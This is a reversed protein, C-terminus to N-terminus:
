FMFACNIVKADYYILKYECYVKQGVTFVASESAMKLYHTKKTRGVAGYCPRKQM